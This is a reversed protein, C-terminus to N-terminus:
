VGSIFEKALFIKEAKKNLIEVIMSKDSVIKKLDDGDLLIIYYRSNKMVKNAYDIAESSFSSTTVIMVIDAETLFTLGIEKTIVGIDVTKRTNKCQIQWRNYIIKDNAALVDVEAGATEQSRIRWGTFHLGLLRTMWISLLELAVGKEYKNPSVLEDVVDNFSKNLSRLAVGSIKALNELLPIYVEKVAKPTLKVLHPKAGRGITTKSLEVLGIRELPKLINVPLNKTTVKLKYMSRVYDAVKNS